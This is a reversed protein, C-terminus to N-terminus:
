NNMEQIIQILRSIFQQYVNLGRLRVAIAICHFILRGVVVIRM